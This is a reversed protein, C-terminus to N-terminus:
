TRNSALVELCEKLSERWHPIELGFTTKIKNKNLVSYAPRKAPTPYDKTEIPRVKVAMGALEFIAVAFDYWSTVGENSYHYIGSFKHRDVEKKEVKQLIALIAAALDRAYTPTGIQDFVVGLEPRQAALRLMTKVFNNGYTSYVWSTRIIQTGTPHNKMAADDGELKTKAYVGQPNTTDTEIFPLHKQTHYVYDTSIQVLSAKHVACAKSLNAPGVSNVKWALSTEEEAKDVSTYAACNVCYQVPNESFFVQVARENAIDLEEIDVFIFDFLPHGQSLAQLEHGVQGKSGTVLITPRQQKM